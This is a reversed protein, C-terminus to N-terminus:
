RAQCFRYKAPFAQLFSRGSDTLARLITASEASGNSLNAELLGEQVMERVDSDNEPRHVRLHRDDRRQVALLVRRARSLNM